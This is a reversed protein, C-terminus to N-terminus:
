PTPEQKMHDRWVFLAAWTGGAAMGVAFDSYGVLVWWLIAGIWFGFALSATRELAIASPAEDTM